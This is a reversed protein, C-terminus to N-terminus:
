TPTPEFGVATLKKKGFENKIKSQNIAILIYLFLSFYENLYSKNKLVFFNLQYFFKQCRHSKFGRWCGSVLVCM